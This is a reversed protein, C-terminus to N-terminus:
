YIDVVCAVLKTCDSQDGVADVGDGLRVWWEGPRRALPFCLKRSTHRRILQFVKLGHSYLWPRLEINLYIYTKKM